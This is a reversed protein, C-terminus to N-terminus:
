NLPCTNKGLAAYLGCWSFFSEFFCFGSFFILWASWSTLVAVILLTVGLGVRFYRDLQGINKKRKYRAARSLKRLLFRYLLGFIFSLLYLALVYGWGFPSSMITLFSDNFFQSKIGPLILATNIMEKIPFVESDGIALSYKGRNSPSFVKINYIGGQVLQGKLAVGKQSDRSQYEPGWFYNDKAFEEFYPTWNFDRGNLVAVLENGTATMRTIEVSLDKKVDKVDPVLLGVYLRFDGSQQIRFEAPVGKLEGYFAQSIEPNKIEVLNSKVLRPQHASAIGPFIILFGLSFIITKLYKKFM